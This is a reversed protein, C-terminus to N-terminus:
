PTSTNGQQQNRERQRNRQQNRQQAPRERQLEPVNKTPLWRRHEAIVVQCSADTALNTHEGPDTRHDYLEEDGNAYRIYRWNASRVGHNNRGHTTVTPRNWDAQPNKLLPVLSHGELESRPPLGCLEILTPYVDLLNVPAPCTAGANQGDPLVFVLPVRTAEEWLAFKRWHHKEGLHWGHDGWLVIILRDKIPSQDRAELLRGMLHDAFAISALYGQVAQPWQNSEVVAKHDGEPKAMRIGAPPIDDLEDDPVHPIQVEDLPFLDFFQQPVYWPLHPRFIGCALFLPQSEDAERLQQTVYDLTRSDAFQEVPAEVPSWDFQSRNLGNANRPKNFEDPFTQKNLAPAYEDWSAPDSFAGHFIKGSGVARYGHQRFHQPITVAQPLVPRWADANYYVGTSSPRLGTMIAVRSPNCAPAACYAQTFKVGEQFLRDFNPTRAQPHGGLAGIWDNLDDVAVFLVHPKGSGAQEEARCVSTGGLVLGLCVCSGIGLWVRGIGTRGASQRQRVSNRRM